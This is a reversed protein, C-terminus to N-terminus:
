TLAKQCRLCHAGRTHVGKLCLLAGFATAEEYLPAAQVALGRAQLENARTLSAQMCANLEEVTTPIPGPTM